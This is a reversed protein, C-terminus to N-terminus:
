SQGGAEARSERRLWNRWGKWTRKNTMRRQFTESYKEILKAARQTRTAGKAADFISKGVGGACNLVISGLMSAAEISSNRRIINADVVKISRCYNRCIVGVRLTLFANATGDLLCDLAVSAVLALGPIISLVGHMLAANFVPQIQERISPDDLQTAAFLAAGVNAYLKGFEGVTPRQNYLRAIKYVLQSQQVLVMVADLRGNQSIATSVFVRSATKQIIENAKSDLVKIASEISGRDGSCTVGNLDPNLALRAAVRNLYIRYEESQEDAPPAMVKPLRILIVVPVAIVCAYVVLLICLVIRALVPSITNALAVVQVTQNIIFLTSSVLVFVSAAGIFKKWM